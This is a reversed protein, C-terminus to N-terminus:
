ATGNISRTRTLRPKSGSLLQGECQVLTALPDPPASDELGITRGRLSVPPKDSYAM